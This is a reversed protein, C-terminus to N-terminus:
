SAGGFLRRRMSYTSVIDNTVTTMDALAREDFFMLQWGVANAARSRAQDKSQKLDGGHWWSAGPELGLMLDPWALDIFIPEGSLLTLPHQKEPEPLGARRIAGLVDIEFSSAIPRRRAGTKQLWKEMVRIGHRGSRRVSELFDSAEQPTVLGLHWADEAASEFSFQNLRDALSLLMPLPRELRFGNVIEVDDECLWSSGRRSVWAPLKSRGSRWPVSTYIRRWPMDRMGRVRGATGGMLFGAPATHLQVAMARAWFTEPSSPARVVGPLMSVVVGDHIWRTVTRRSVGADYLQTVDAVGHQALFLRDIEPRHTVGGRPTVIPGFRCCM